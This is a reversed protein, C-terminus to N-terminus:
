MLGIAERAQELTATEPSLFREELVAILSALDEETFRGGKAAAWELLLVEVEEYTM